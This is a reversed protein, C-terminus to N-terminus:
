WGGPYIPLNTPRVTAGGRNFRNIQEVQSIVQANVQGQEDEAGAHAGSGFIAAGAMITPFTRRLPRRRRGTNSALQHIIESARDIRAEARATRALSEQLVDALATQNDGVQALLSTYRENSEKLANEVIDHALKPDQGAQKLRGAVQGELRKALDAERMAFPNHEVQGLRNNTIEQVLPEMFGDDLRNAEKQQRSKEARQEIDIRRSDAKAELEAHKVELDKKVDIRPIKGEQILNLATDRAKKLLNSAVDGVIGDDVGRKKLTDIVGAQQAGMAEDPSAGGKIANYLSKELQEDLGGQVASTTKTTQTKIDKFFDKVDKISEDLKRNGEEFDDDVQKAHARATPSAAQLADALGPNVGQAAFKQPNARILDELWKRQREDGNAAQGLQQEVAGRRNTMEVAQRGEKSNAIRNRELELVSAGEFDNADRAAKIQVNMADVRARAAKVEPSEPGVTAAIVADTLGERGRAGQNEVIAQTVGKATAEQEDTPANLKDYGHKAKTLEDLKVKANNIDQVDIRTKWEKDTLEKLAKTISEVDEITKAGLGDDFLKKVQDWNKYLAYAATGLLSAATEVAAVQPAALGAAQAMGGFMGPINNLIGLFGGTTLDELGRSFELVARTAGRANFGTAEIAKAAQGNLVRTAADSAEGLRSIEASLKSIEGVAEDAKITGAALQGQFAAIKQNLSAIKADLDAVAQGGSAQVSLEIASYFSADGQYGM